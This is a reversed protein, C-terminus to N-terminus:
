NMSSFIGPVRDLNINFGMNSDVLGVHVNVSDWTSKGIRCGMLFCRDLFEMRVM